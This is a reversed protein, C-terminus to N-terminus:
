LNGGRIIIGNLAMKAHPSFESAWPLVSLDNWIPDFRADEAEQSSSPVVFGSDRMGAETFGISGRRGQRAGHSYCITAFGVIKRGPMFLSLAILLETGGLSHGALCGIFLITATPDTVDRIFGLDTRLDADSILTLPTLSVPNNRGNIRVEGSDGHANIALRSIQGPQLPACDQFLNGCIFNPLAIPKHSLKSALSKLSGFHVGVDWGAQGRRTGEPYPLHSLTSGDDERLRCDFEVNLPTDLNAWISVGHKWYGAIPLPDKPDPKDLAWDYRVYDGGRFFYAKGNFPGDGNIAAEIGNAFAGPLQWASISFPGEISNTAWIYRVYLNGKFFYTKGSFKGQGNLAADIGTLFGDPLNWEALSQDTLDVVNTDWDYRVYKDGKFFYAKSAFDEQGNFTANIGSQFSDPLNWLANAKPYGFDERDLKWDYRVYRRGRFFYAKGKYQGVGELAADIRNFHM